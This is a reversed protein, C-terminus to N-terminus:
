LDPELDFMDEGMLFLSHAHDDSGDSQFPRLGLDTEDIEGIIYLSNHGEVASIRGCLALNPAFARWFRFFVWFLV